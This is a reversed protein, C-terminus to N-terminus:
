EVGHRVGNGSLSCCQQKVDLDDEDAGERVVADDVWVDAPTTNEDEL